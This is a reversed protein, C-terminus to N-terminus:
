KGNLLENRIYMFEEVASTDNVQEKFTIYRHVFFIYM